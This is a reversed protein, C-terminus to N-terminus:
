NLFKGTCKENMAIMVVEPFDYHTHKYTFMYTYLQTADAFGNQYSKQKQRDLHYHSRQRLRDTLQKEDRCVKQVEMGRQM